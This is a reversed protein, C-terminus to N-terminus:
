TSSIDAAFSLYCNKYMCLSSYYFDDFNFLYCCSFSILYCYLISRSFYLALFYFYSSYFFSFFYRSSLYYFSLIEFRYLSTLFETLVLM